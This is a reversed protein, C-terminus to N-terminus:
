GCRSKFGVLGFSSNNLKVDVDWCALVALRQAHYLGLVGAVLDHVIAHLRSSARLMSSLLRPTM